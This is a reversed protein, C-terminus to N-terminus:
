GEKLIRNLTYYSIGWHETVDREVDDIRKREEHYLRRFMQRIKEYRKQTNRKRSASAQQVPSVRVM